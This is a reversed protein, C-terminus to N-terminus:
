DNLQPIPPFRSRLWSSRCIRHAAGSPIPSFAYPFPGPHSRRATAGSSSPSRVGDGERGDFSPDRRMQAELDRLPLMGNAEVRDISWQIPSIFPPSATVSVTLGTVPESGDNFLTVSELFRRANQYTVLGVSAAAKEDILIM